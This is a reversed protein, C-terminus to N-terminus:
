FDFNLAELITLIAIELVASKGVNIERLIQTAPFNALKWVPRRENLSKVNKKFIFFVACQM